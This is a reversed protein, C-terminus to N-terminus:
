GCAEDVRGGGLEWVKCAYSPFVYGSQSIRLAYTGSPTDSEPTWQYSSSVASEVHDNYNVGQFVSMPFDSTSAVTSVKVLNTTPGKM